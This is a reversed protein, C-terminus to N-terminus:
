SLRTDLDFYTRQWLEFILLSWVKWTYKDHSRQEDILSSVYEPKFFGRQRARPSLLVERVIEQLPGRLWRAFPAEFGRKRRELIQKPLAEAGLKRLIIKGGPGDGLKLHLPLQSAMEVLRHDLFPVRSELSHAMSMRDETRLINPLMKKLDIYLMKDVVSRGNSEPYFLNRFRQISDSPAVRGAFDPSFLNEKEAVTFAQVLGLNRDAPSALLRASFSKLQPLGYRRRYDKVSGGFALLHGSRLQRSAADEVLAMRYRNYGAFLEDAGQGGLVVKVNDRVLRCLSFYPYIGASITPEDMHWVVRSLTEIFRGPDCRVTVEHHDTGLHQAALRAFPREDFGEEDFGASFTNVQHSLHSTALWTILSSDLGGSLYTGLPVDSRLQLLVSDSLLSRLDSIYEDTSKPPQKVLQVDWYERRAMAGDSSLTLTHAPPLEFVNEFFTEDDLSYTLSFFDNVAEARVRRTFDKLALIGKAESAFALGDATRAYYLPKIGIRDRALLLRQQRSDWIAFAFMGNLEEPCDAGLEEYCHLIVEADGNTRLTHGRKTLWERLELYNYVEGNYILHLSNDENAMPQHGGALDIISLRCHGLGLPGDLYFGLDDPGRHRQVSVM